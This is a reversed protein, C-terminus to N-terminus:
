KEFREVCMKGLTSQRTRKTATYQEHKRKRNAQKLPCVVNIFIAYMNYYFTPIKERGCVSYAQNCKISFM